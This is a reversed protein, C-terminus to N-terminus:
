VAIRLKSNSNDNIYNRIDTENVHVVKTLDSISYGLNNQHAKFIENFIKPEDIEVDFSEKIREGRRSLEIMLSKYREDQIAKISKAKYVLSRKSVQWYLKLQALKQYNLNILENRCESTPVLFESAFSDAENEFSDRDHKIREYIEFSYRFPLHLIQHALEHALSFRKRDNPMNKNLIILPYNRETYVTIGDFKPTDVDLYIVTIGHKELTNILNRVPGRKIGFFERTAIAIDEPSLNANVQLSPIKLAPTDVSKVLNDFVLRVIEIKAELTNKEKASLTLRKRYFFDSIPSKSEVQYFFKVPYNLIRSIENIIEDSPNIIIGQEIRSLHSQDLNLEKALETQSKGRSERAVTLLYNNFKQM